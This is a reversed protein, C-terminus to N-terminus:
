TSGTKGGPRLAGRFASFPRLRQFITSFSSQERSFARRTSSSNQRAACPFAPSKQATSSTGSRGPSNGRLPTERAANTVRNITNGSFAAM